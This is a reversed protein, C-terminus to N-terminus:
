NCFLELVRLSLVCQTRCSSFSNSSSMIEERLANPFRFHLQFWESGTWRYGSVSMSLKPVSLLYKIVFSFRNNAIMRQNRSTSYRKQTKSM